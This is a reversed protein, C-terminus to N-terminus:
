FAADEVAKVRAKFAEVEQWCKLPKDSNGNLCAIVAERAKNTEADLEGRKPRSNLKEKIEELKQKVSTAHLKNAEDDTTSNNATTTPLKSIAEKLAESSQKEIKKM